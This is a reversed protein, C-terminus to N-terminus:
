AMRRRTRASVALAALGAVLLALSTPEPVPVAVSSSRAVGEFGPNVGGYLADTGNYAEGTQSFSYAFWQVSTPATATTVRAVFGNATSGTPLGNFSGDFWNNDYLIGTANDWPAGLSFQQFGSPSGQLDVAGLFVGFFYLGQSAIPINNFVNFNLLWNGVSGSTTYSVQVPQAAASASPLAIAAALLLSRLRM